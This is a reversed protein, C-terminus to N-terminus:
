VKCGEGKEAPSSVVSRRRYSVKRRARDPSSSPPLIGDSPCRLTWEATSPSWAPGRRASRSVLSMLDIASCSEKTTALPHRLGIAELM